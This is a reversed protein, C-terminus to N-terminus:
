GPYTSGDLARNVTSEKGNLEVEFNQLTKGPQSDIGLGKQKNKEFEEV